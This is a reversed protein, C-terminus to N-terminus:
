SLITPKSLNKFHAFTAFVDEKHTFIFAQM